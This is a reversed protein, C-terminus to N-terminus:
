IYLHKLYIEVTGIGCTIGANLAIVNCGKSGAAEVSHPGEALCWCNM